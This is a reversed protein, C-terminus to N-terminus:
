VAGYRKNDANKVALQESEIKSKKPKCFISNCGFGGIMSAATIDVAMENLEKEGEKYDKKIHWKELNRERSEIQYRVEAIKSAEVGLYFYTSDNHRNKSFRLGKKIEVIEKPLCGKGLKEELFAISNEMGKIRENIAERGQEEFQRIREAVRAHERAVDQSTLPPKHENLKELNRAAQMQARREDEMEKYRLSEQQSKFKEELQADLEAATPKPEIDEYHIRIARGSSDTDVRCGDVYTPRGVSDTEITSGYVDGNYHIGPM